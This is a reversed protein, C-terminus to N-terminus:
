ELPFVVVCSLGEPAYDLEVAGELEYSSAREILKM